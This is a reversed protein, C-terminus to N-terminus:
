FFSFLGQWINKKKNRRSKVYYVSHGSNLASAEAQHAPLTAAGITLLVGAAVGGLKELIERWVAKEKESKSREAHVSAIIIAPDIKLLEAVRIATSDDFYGKGNRWISVAGRTVGLTKAIAYDSVGGQHQKLADLIEITTQM